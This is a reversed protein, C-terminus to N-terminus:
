LHQYLHRQCRFHHCTHHQCSHQSTHLWSHSATYGANREGYVDHCSVYRCMERRLPFAFESQMEFRFKKKRNAPTIIIPAFIRTNIPKKQFIQTNITWRCMHIPVHAHTCIHACGCTCSVSVHVYACVCARLCMCVSACVSIWGDMWEDVWKRLLSLSLPLIFVYLCWLRVSRHAYLREIRHRVSKVLSIWNQM